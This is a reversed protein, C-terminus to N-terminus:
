PHKNQIDRFFLVSLVSVKLKESEIKTLKLMTDKEQVSQGLKDVSHRASAEIQEATAEM